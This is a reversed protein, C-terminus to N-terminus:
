LCNLPGGVTQDVSPPGSKETCNLKFTTNYLAPPSMTANRPLQININITMTEKESTRAVRAAIPQSTSESSEGIGFFMSMLVTTPNINKERIIL